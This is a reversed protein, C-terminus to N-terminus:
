DNYIEIVADLPFKQSQRLVSATNPHDAGAARVQSLASELDLIPESTLFMRSGKPFNGNWCKGPWKMSGGLADYILGDPSEHSGQQRLAEAGVSYAAAGGFPFLLYKDEIWYFVVGSVYLGQGSAKSVSWLQENVKRLADAIHTGAFHLDGRSDSTIVSNIANSVQAFVMEVARMEQQQFSFRASVCTGFGSLLVSAFANGQSTSKCLTVTQKKNDFHFKIM